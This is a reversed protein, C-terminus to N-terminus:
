INEGKIKTCKGQVRYPVTVHKAVLDIFQDIKDQCEVETEIVDKTTYITCRDWFGLPNLFCVTIFVKIM